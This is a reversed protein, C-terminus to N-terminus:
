IGAARLVEEGELLPIDLRKSMKAAKDSRMSSHTETDLIECIVSAVPLGALRMLAISLETHGRRENLSGRAEILLPVHGPTTFRELFAARADLGHDLLSAVEGVSRVTLARENDSIGTYANRHNVHISFAPSGGYPAHRQVVEALVPYDDAANLLLEYMFPLGVASAVERGMAACILGGANLRMFAIDDPTCSIAAKVLDVEDEREGGDHLMVFGGASLSSLAIEVSSSFKHMMDRQALQM